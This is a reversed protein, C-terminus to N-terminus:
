RVQFLQESRSSVGTAEDRVELTLQYRGPVLTVTRLLGGVASDEDFVPLTTGSAGSPGIVTGTLHLGGVGPRLAVRIETRGLEGPVAYGGSSGLSYYEGTGAADVFELTVNEGADDAHRYHWLQYAPAEPTAAHDEISDAPGFRVYAQGRASVSGQRRRGFSFHDDAYAQRRRYEEMDQDLYLGPAAPM